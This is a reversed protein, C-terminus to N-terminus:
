ATVAGVDLQDDFEVIRRSTEPRDIVSPGYHKMLYRDPGRYTVQDGVLYVQGPIYLGAREAAGVNHHVWDHHRRDLHVLHYVEDVSDLLLGGRSRTVKHHVDTARRGCRTFLQNVRVMVECHGFSRQHVVSYSTM